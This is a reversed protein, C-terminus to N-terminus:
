DGYPLHIHFATGVGVTSEVVVRGAHLAVIKNVIDLGLGSGEGPPKTTFFPDFIRDRIDDPIGCGTDIVSVVAEDGDRRLRITLKGRYNMAQLANHVLNTWVQNLQDPLCRIPAIDAYERVLETGQKIQNHYITLVTELGERLDAEVMEGSEGFHAFSKLAFVIKAVRDVAVNINAANGAVIALDHLTDIIRESHPHRLLPLFHPVDEAQLLANLIGARHRSDDVGAVELAFALSRTLSREERTSRPPRPQQARQLLEKFLVGEEPNLLALVGVLSDLAGGLADTINRGSSKVAGIPTNIEHAVGAVLQGLAAMKESQIVQNQAHQLDRLAMELIRNSEQLAVAAARRESIDDVTWIYREGAAGM